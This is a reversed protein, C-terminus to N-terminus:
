RTWFTFTLLYAVSAFLVVATLTVTNWNPKAGAAIRRMQWIQLLGLPLPLFAPLAIGGPLGFLMALGLLLFASLILVNHIVMGNQWGLRVLLTQKEYKVDTAYDPFEFALMMALHLVTLPFTSMVLLRHLDQMQLLFGFTPVLNAVLISTTLEGYGTSSLRVPPASYFIAALLSIVMIMLVVPTIVSAQLMVVTLSATITLSTLAAILPVNRSLKGPGVADSGGSFPTQSPNRSDVPSDYYENLYHASLQLSSVWSQGLFYLTWNVSAGLYRAIGVGLGFLLAAGVLFLPRSLQIFLRVSRPIM